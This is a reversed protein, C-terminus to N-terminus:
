GLVARVVIIYSFTLGDVQWAYCGPEMVWTGGPATRWGQGGNLTPGPPVVLTGVTPGEGMAIVGPGDLRTARVIFPGQYTPVSFWLTKVGLWPPVSTPDILHAIGRRADSVPGSAIIPRVPGTGLAIGGFDATDVQSGPTAPCSQGARLLPFHLARVLAGPVSGVVDNSVCVAGESACADRYGIPASTGAAPATGLAATSPAVSPAQSLSTSAARSASTAVATAQSHPKSGGTTCAGVLLPLTAIAACRLFAARKVSRAGVGTQHAM